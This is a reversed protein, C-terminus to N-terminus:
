PQVTQLRIQTAGAAALRPLLRALDEAPLAADAWVTLPGDGPRMALAALAADGRAAGYALRADSAIYLTEPDNESSAGDAMALEIDFPTRPTLSATMLFFVLLLFVVNIMPVIARDHTAKRDQRDTEFIM